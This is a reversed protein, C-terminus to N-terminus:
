WLGRLSDAQLPHVRFISIRLGKPLHISTALSPNITLLGNLRSGPLRVIGAHDM